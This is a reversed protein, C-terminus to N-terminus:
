CDKIGKKTIEREREEENPVGKKSTLGKLINLPGTAIGDGNGARLETGM